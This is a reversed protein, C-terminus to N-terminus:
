LSKWKIIRWQIKAAMQPAFKFICLIFKHKFRLSPTDTINLYSYENLRFHVKKTVISKIEENSSTIRSLTLFCCFYLNFFRIERELEDQFQAKIKSFINDGVQHMDLVKLDNTKTSSFNRQIYYYFASKNLSLSNAKLILDCTFEMDENLLGEPFRISNNDLFERRILKNCPSVSIRDQLFEAIIKSRETHLNITINSFNDIDFPRSNTPDLTGDPNVSIIQSFVVDARTETAQILLSSFYNESVTDDADVFGIYPTTVKDIGLNRAAAQGRNNQSYVSVNKFESTFKNLYQLSNDTSGDNIFIYEFNKFEREKKLSTFCSELFPAANYCPIIISLQANM